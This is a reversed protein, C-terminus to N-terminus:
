THTGEAPNTNILPHEKDSAIIQVAVHNQDAILLAEGKDSTLLFHQEYESLKFEEVVTHITTTDQRLLIRMASQSAIAKGYEHSLFDHAQQTIINVGLYYKRARRVLGSIFRASESHQLLLWGEDIVLLKKHDTNQIAKEIFQAVVLLMIDKTSDTLDKIDFVILHNDLDINTHSNFLQSLSGTIYKELKSHLSTHKNAKLLKFFDILLPPSIDRDVSQYLQILTKDVASKEDSSLSGLMVSLLETLNQIHTYLDKKSSQEFQFPNIKEQSNASLKILTGGVSQCLKQYEGEPDIVIVKCGITLQRLIEVKATYSKGSGSQAFTISNSNHLSFRDVIVLSNNSKNIGYLIGTEQVLQSSVFPFTLSASTTDLNRKQSLLNQGRPLISQLGDLQRFTANKTFFLKTSLTSRLVQSIRDLQSVSEAQLLIYISVQFLREQGRLIKEKLEVASELPDLLESGIIKGERQMTRKTSELETIKRELKPLAYQSDVLELHYSIDISHNFNILSTLWSSNAVYPYASIFLVRYFSDDLQIHNHHEHLASFSIVDLTDQLGYEFLNRHKQPLLKSLLTQSLKAPM